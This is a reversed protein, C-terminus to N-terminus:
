HSDISTSLEATGGCNRARFYLRRNTLLWSGGLRTCSSVLRNPHASSYVTTHSAGLSMCRRPSSRGWDPCVPPFSEPALRDMVWRERNENQSWFDCVRVWSGEKVIGHWIRRRNEELAEVANICNVISGLLVLCFFFFKSNFFQNDESLANEAALLALRVDRGIAKEDRGKYGLSRFVRCRPLLPARAGTILCVEGFLFFSFFFSPSM